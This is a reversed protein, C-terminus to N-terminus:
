KFIESFRIQRSYFIGDGKDLCKFQFSLYGDEWYEKAHWALNQMRAPMNLPDLYEKPKKPGWITYFGCIKGKTKKEYASVFKFFENEKFTPRSRGVRTKTIRKAM